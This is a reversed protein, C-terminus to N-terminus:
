VADAAQEGEQEPASLPGGNARELMKYVGIRTLGTAAQLEAYTAGARKARLADQDREKVSALYDAQIQTAKTTRNAVQGLLRAKAPNSTM